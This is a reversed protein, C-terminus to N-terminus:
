KKLFTELDDISRVIMGVGGSRNVRDIFLQQVTSIKDKGAKIECAIFQGTTRHFGIIDSIGPTSSNARYSKIKADYVGGNNQRWVHWGKIDLIKLAHKTLANASISPLKVPPNVTNIKRIRKEQINKLNWNSM